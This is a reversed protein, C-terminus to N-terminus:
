LLTLHKSMFILSFKILDLHIKVIEPETYPPFYQSM